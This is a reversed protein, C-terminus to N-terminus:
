HAMLVPLATQALMGRTFGGLVIQRWRAHSYAGMVGLDARWERALDLFGDADRDDKDRSIIETTVGHLRLTKAADDPGPVGAAAGFTVVGVAEARAFFSSAAAMARAAERSGNWAFLIRRPFVGFADPPALLVPRGSQFLTEELNAAERHSDASATRGFVVLDAVRAAAGVDFPAVGEREVWRMTAAGKATEDFMRKLVAAKEVAAQELGILFENSVTAGFAYPETAPIQPRQRIHLAEVGAGTKAAVIAAAKLAARGGDATEIPVIIRKISM